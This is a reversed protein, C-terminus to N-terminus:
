QDPWRGCALRAGDAALFVADLGQQAVWAPGQEGLILSATSAANAQAATSALVSCTLWPTQAPVGTRPDIIHHAIAGDATRWARVGVGSTALGADWVQLSEPQVGPIGPDVSVQWPQGAAACRLDGGMNALIDCGFEEAAMHALRDALWGKAVAGVDLQTDRPIRVRDRSVEVQQWRGPASPKHVPAPVQGDRWARYGAADVFHGMCPNVLGDTLEAAELSAEIVECLYGSVEVWEGPRANIASIQSDEWFRSAAADMRAVEDHLLREVAQKDVVGRVVLWLDTKWTAMGATTVEASTFLSPLTTDTVRADRRTGTTVTIVMPESHEDM